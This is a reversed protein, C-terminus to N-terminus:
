VKREGIGRERRIFRSAIPIHMTHGLLAFALKLHTPVQVHQSRKM